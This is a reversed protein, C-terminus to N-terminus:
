NVSIIVLLASFILLSFLVSVGAFLYSIFVQRRLYSWALLFNLLGILGSLFITRYVWGIDGLFTIGQFFDFHIILNKSFNVSHIEFLIVGLGLFFFSTLFLGGLIIIDRYARANEKGFIKM